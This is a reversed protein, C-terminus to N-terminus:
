RGKALWWLWGILVFQIVLRATAILKSGIVPRERLLDIVHLPLFIVMLALALWLGLNRYAPILLLAGIILEALGGAANALPKPFWDPMFPDYFAPNVFHYVGAALLIIGFVIAGM